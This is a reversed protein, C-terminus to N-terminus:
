KEVENLLDKLQGYYRHTRIQTSTPLVIKSLTDTITKKAAGKKDMKMELKAKLTAARILNDGYANQYATNVYRYAEANQNLDMLARAFNYSFVFEGHYTSAMSKYLDKAKQAEGSKLLCYARELNVGRALKLNSKAALPEYYAACRAYKSKAKDKQDLLEYLDAEVVRLDAENPDEFDIKESGAWTDVNKEVTEVYKRGKEKDLEALALVWSAFEIDNPFQAILGEYLTVLKAKDDAKETLKVEASTKTKIAKPSNLNGLYSIAKEYEGREYYNLGVRLRRNNNQEKETEIPNKEFAQTKAEAVALTEKQLEPLTDLWVNVAKLPRYGVLRDIENLDGDAIVTTPYGGVRFKDKFEWSIDSDSDLVLKVYGKTRDKFDKQDFVYEEFMNCYPCWHASFFLYLPKKQRKAQAVANRPDNELFGPPAGRDGKPIYMMTERSSKILSSKKFDRPGTITIQFREPKCFSEKDDCINLLINQPGSSTFRCQIEQPTKNTIGDKGCQQPAKLNFHHGAVPQFKVVENIVAVKIEKSLLSQTPIQAQALQLFSFLLAIM